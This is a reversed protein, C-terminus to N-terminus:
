QMRRHRVSLVAIACARDGGAAPVHAKRALADHTRVRGAGFEDRCEESNEISAADGNGGARRAAAREVLEIGNGAVSTRAERQCRM